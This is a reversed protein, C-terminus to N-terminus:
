LGIIFDSGLVIINKIVYVHKKKPLFMPTWIREKAILLSIKKNEIIYMKFPIIFNKFKIVMHKNM